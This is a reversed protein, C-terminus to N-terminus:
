WALSVLHFNLVSLYKVGLSVRNNLVFGVVDLCIKQMFHSSFLLKSLLRQFICVMNYKAVGLREARSSRLGYGTALCNITPSFYLCFQRNVFKNRGQETSTQGSRKEKM